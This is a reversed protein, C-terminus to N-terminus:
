MRARSAAPLQPGTEAAKRSIGQISDSRYFGQARRLTPRGAVIFLIAAAFLECPRLALWALAARSPSDIRAALPPGLRDYVRRLARHGRPFVAKLAIEFLKLRQLQPTVRFGPSAEFGGTLWLPARAAATAVFCTPPETPLAQYAEAANLLAFRWSVAYAALGAALGGLPRRWPRELRALLRCLADTTWIPGAVLTLIALFWFPLQAAQPLREFFSGNGSAEFYAGISALLWLSAVGAAVGLWGFRRRLRRFLVMLGILAAESVAVFLLVLAWAVWPAWGEGVMISAPLLLAYHLGLVVGVMLIARCIGSGVWPGPRIAIAACTSVIVAALPAFAIAGPRDVLLKLWVELGPEQWEALNLKAIALTFSLAPLLVTVFAFFLRQPWGRPFLITTDM